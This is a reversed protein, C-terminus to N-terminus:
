LQFTHQQPPPNLDGKNKSWFSARLALVIKKEQPLGWLRGGGGVGKIQLDLDAVTSLTRPIVKGKTTTSLDCSTKVSSKFLFSIRCIILEPVLSHLKFMKGPQRVDLCQRTNLIQGRRKGM